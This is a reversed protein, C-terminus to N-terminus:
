IPLDVRERERVFVVDREASLTVTDGDRGFDVSGDGHSMFAQVNFTV